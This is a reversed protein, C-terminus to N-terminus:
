QNAIWQIYKPIYTYVGYVGARACGRGFSTIGVQTLEGMKGLLLAPGGSDGQCTDVGGQQYGACIMDDTLQPYPMKCITNKVIPVQAELLQPSQKGTESILGWGLIKAQYFGNVDLATKQLAVLPHSKIPEKLTIVAVDFGTDASTFKPHSVFQTAQFFKGGVGFLIDSGVYVSVFEPPYVNCHAATLVKNESILTGGCFQSRNGNSDQVVLAVMWPYKQAMDPPLGGVIKVSQQDNARISMSRIDVILAKIIDEQSPTLGIGTLRRDVEQSSISQEGLRAQGFTAGSLLILILCIYIKM